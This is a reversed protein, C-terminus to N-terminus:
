RLAVHKAFQEEMEAGIGGNKRIYQAFDHIIDHLKFSKIHEAEYKEFGQFLSCM